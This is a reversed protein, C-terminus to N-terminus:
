CRGPVPSVLSGNPVARGPRGPVRHLRLSSPERWPWSSVPLPSRSSWRPLVSQRLRDTRCCFRPDRLLIRRRCGKRRRRIRRHIGARISMSLRAARRRSARADRSWGEWGVTERRGAWGIGRHSQCDRCSGAGPVWHFGRCWGSVSRGMGSLHIGRCGRNVIRWSTRRCRTCSCRCGAQPGRPPMRLMRGICSRISRSFGIRATCMAIGLMFSLGMGVLHSIRYQVSGLRDPGGCPSDNLEGPSARARLSSTIAMPCGVWRRKNGEDLHGHGFWSLRGSAAGFTPM